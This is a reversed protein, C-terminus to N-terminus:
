DHAADAGSDPAGADGCGPKNCVGCTGATCTTESYICSVACIPRPGSCQSRLNEADSDFKPLDAKNIAAGGCGTCACLDGDSVVACDSPAACHSDYDSARIVHPGGSSSSSCAAATLLVAAFLAFFRM